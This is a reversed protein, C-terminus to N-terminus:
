TQLLQHLAQPDWHHLEHRLRGGEDEEEAEDQQVAVLLLDLQTVSAENVVRLYTLVPLRMPRVQGRLVTQQVPHTHSM